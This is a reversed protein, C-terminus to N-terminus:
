CIVPNKMGCLRVPKKQQMCGTLAQSITAASFLSFLKLFVLCCWSIIDMM